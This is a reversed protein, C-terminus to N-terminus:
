PQVNEINYNFMSTTRNYEDATALEQQDQLQIPHPTYNVVAFLNIVIVSGISLFAFAPRTIFRSLSEWINKKEKMLRAEVRTYLFLPPSAPTINNLSNLTEEVKQQIQSKRDM